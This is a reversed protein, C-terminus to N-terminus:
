LTISWNSAPYAPSIGNHDQKVGEGSHIPRRTRPREAVERVRPEDRGQVAPRREDVPDVPRDPAPVNQAHSAGEKNDDEEVVGEENTQQEHKFVENIRRASDQVHQLHHPVTNAAVLQTITHMGYDILEQKQAATIGPIIDISPAGIDAKNHLFYEYAERNNQIDAKQARQPAWDTVGPQTYKVMLVTRYIRRGAKKSADPDMKSQEYFVCNPDQVPGLVMRELEANTYDRSM